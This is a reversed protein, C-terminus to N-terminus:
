VYECSAAVEDFLKQQKLYAILADVVDPDFQLWKEQNLINIASDYSLAKRYPRNSTMADFADAVSVIKAGLPIEDGKIQDPYGTGDYREHHHRIIKRITGLEDINKLVEDAVVPHQKIMKFEKLSLKGPKNLINRSVGIKGIDHLTAAFAIDRIESENLNMMQAIAISLKRVQKSHSATYSDKIELLDILVDMVSFLNRKLKFNREQVLKHLDILCLKIIEIEDDDVRWLTTQTQSDLFRKLTRLLGNLPRMMIKLFRRQFYSFLLLLGIFLWVLIMTFRTHPIKYITRPQLFVLMLKSDLITHYIFYKDFRHGQEIEQINLQKIIEAHYTPNFNKGIGKIINQEAGLLLAVGDILYLSSFDLSQSSGNSQNSEHNISYALNSLYLINREHIVDYFIRYTIFYISSSIILLIITFLLVNSLLIKNTLKVALGGAKM